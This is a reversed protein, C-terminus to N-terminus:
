RQCWKRIVITTGSGVETTIEMEDMLKRSGSLGIGLGGGTTYGGQRAQELDQIGPGKDEFELQLGQCGRADIQKWRLIGEGAHQYINRTLESAATVVRTVDTVRFGLATAVDRIRRRATVIDSESRIEIEGEVPESM